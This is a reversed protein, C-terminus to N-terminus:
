DHCIYTVNNNYNALIDAITIHACMGKHLQLPQNNYTLYFEYDFDLNAIWKNIIWSRLPM